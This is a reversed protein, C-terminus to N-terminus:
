KVKRKNTMSPSAVPNPHDRKSLEQVQQKIKTIEKTQKQFKPKKYGM